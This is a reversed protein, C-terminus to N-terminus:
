KGEENIRSAQILFFVASKSSGWNPLKKLDVDNKTQATRIPDTNTAPENASGGLVVYAGDNVVVATTIKNTSFVPQPIRNETLTLEV